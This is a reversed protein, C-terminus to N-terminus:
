EFEMMRREPGASSYRSKWDDTKALAEFKERSHKAEASAYQGALSEKRVISEMNDASGTNIIPKVYKSAGNKIKSDNEDWDPKIGIDMAMRYRPNNLLKDQLGRDISQGAPINRVQNYIKRYRNEAKQEDKDRAILNTASWGDYAPNSFADSRAQKATPHDFTNLTPKRYLRENKESLPYQGIWKEGEVGPSDSYGNFQGRGFDLQQRVEEPAMGEEKAIAKILGDRSGLISYEVAASSAFMDPEYHTDWYNTEWNGSHLSAEQSGKTWDEFSKKKDLKFEDNLGQGWWQGVREVNETKADWGMEDPALYDSWGAPRTTKEDIENTLDALAKYEKSDSDYQEMQYELRAIIEQNRTTDVDGDYSMAHSAPEGISDEPSEFIRVEQGMVPPIERERNLEFEAPLYGFKQKFGERAIEYVADVQTQTLATQDNEIYEPTDAKARKAIKENWSDKDLMVAEEITGVKWNSGGDPSVPYPLVPVRYTDSDEQNRMHYNYNGEVTRFGDKDESTRPSDEGTNYNTWYGSILESRAKRGVNDPISKREQGAWFDDDNYNYSQEAAIVRATGRTGLYDVNLEPSRLNRIPALGGGFPFVQADLKLTYPNVNSKSIALDKGGQIRAMLSQENRRATDKPDKNFQRSVEDDMYTNIRKREALGMGVDFMGRDLMGRQKPTLKKDKKGRFM